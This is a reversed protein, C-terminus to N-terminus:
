KGGGRQPLFACGNLRLQAPTLTDGLRGQEILQRVQLQVDAPYGALYKLPLM